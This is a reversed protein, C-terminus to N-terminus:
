IVQFFNKEAVAQVNSNLLPILTLAVVENAVRGIVVVVFCV